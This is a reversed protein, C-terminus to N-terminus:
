IPANPSAVHLLILFPYPICISAFQPHSAADDEGVEPGDSDELGDSTADNEGEEMGDADEFGDVAGLVLTGLIIGDSLRVGVSSCSGELM